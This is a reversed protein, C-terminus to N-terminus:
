IHWIVKRQHVRSKKIQIRMFIIVQYGKTKCDLTCITPSLYKGQSRENDLDYGISKLGEQSVCYGFNSKECFAIENIENSGWSIADSNQQGFVAMPTPNSFNSLIYGKLLMEYNFDESEMMAIGSPLNITRSMKEPYLGLPM